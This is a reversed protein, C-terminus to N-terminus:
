AFSRGAALESRLTNAVTKGGININISEDRGAILNILMDLKSEVGGNGLGAGNALSFLQSQQSRNLIMEGSNVNAAIRDGTFSTGPVIGGDEFSPSTSAINAVQVFGAIGQAAALPINFPFPVSAMTKTIAEYTNITASAIASAKGIEFLERNSTRMLSSLNGFTDAVASVKQEELKREAEVLDAKTKLEKKTNDAVRKQDALAFNAALQDKATQYQSESILKQDLAAQLRAQDTAYQEAEAQVRTAEFEQDIAQKFQLYQVDNIKKTELLNQYVALQGEASAKASAIENDGLSKGSESQKILEDTFAKLRDQAKKQEESLNKTVNTANELGTSAKNSGNALASLGNDAADKLRLIDVATKALVGDGTAGFANLNKSAEASFQAAEQAAQQFGVSLARIPITLALFPKTLTQVAGFMAEFARVTTDAVTITVALSNLFSSLGQGVLLTLASNQNKLGGTLEEMIVSLEKVTNIVVPNQVVLFGIEKTLDEFSVTALRISGAFTNVKEQAAGGFRDEIVQLANNFTEADTRGKQIALGMKQLSTINGNAAKGLAESASGLDKDLATSLDLAAQTADKLGNKDLQALSQILAANKLIVDDAVGTTKQLEAAYDQIEKSTDESYKGTQALAINLSNIANEQEEAAKVGDVIFADFLQHAVDIIGEFAKVVLNAALNGQFIEYVGAAKGIGISIESFTDKGSDKLKNLSKDAKDSRSIFDSLAAQAAKDELSLSIKISTEAM